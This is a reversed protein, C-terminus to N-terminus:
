EGSEEADAEEGDAADEDDENKVGGGPSALTAVTFDRDTITPSVGEPLPIASIHISDGIKVGDLDITIKEPIATAPCNLEVEYRVVNLVGGIKIGPCKDENIFEVPVAVAVTASQSVRLFDLHMVVDSVPHFQIDRTLVTSKTGAVDIELLRGFIGPQHVIKTIERAQMTIGVPDKKDGYIVAPVLGARRAARASGKGVRERESASITTMDSM